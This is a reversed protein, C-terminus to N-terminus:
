SLGHDRGGYEGAIPTTDHESGRLRLVSSAAQVYFEAAERRRGAEWLALALSSKSLLTDHHDDGFVREHDALAQEFLPIAKELDGAMRYAHALNNRSALTAPHYAGLVRERDALTRQYLPIAKDLEGASQYAYALNNMGVLTQPHDPGLVRENDAMTQVFMPIAKDLDGASRYAYALNNRTVLTDPHNAGLVRERDALTREHMPIAKGLDGALEYAYALNNKSVLTQPDDRGLIRESDALTQQYLPIAKDLDGATRHAFALNNRCALTDAHDPGLVQERCALARQFQTVAESVRGAEALWSALSTRISSITTEHEREVYSLARGLLQIAPELMHIAALDSAHLWAAAVDAQSDFSGRSLDLLWAAAVLNAPDNALWYDEEMQETVLDRLETIARIRLETEDEPDINLAARAQDALPAERFAEVQDQIVTWAAPDAALALGEAVEDPNAFFAASRSVIEPLFAPVPDDERALAVAITLAGQIQPTLEDWRQRYVQELTRPIKALVRDDVPLGGQYRRIRRQTSDRTLWLELLLPTPMAEALVTADSDTVRPAYRRILIELDLRGLRPVQQVEARGSAVAGGLWNGWMPNLEGEPWATLVLLVPRGRVPEALDSLLVAMDATLRHADEIVVVGPLNPHTVARISDALQHATDDRRAAAREGMDVRKNLDRRQDIRHKGAQGTKWLWSAATGIGPVTVNLLEQLQELGADTAEGMAAERLLNVVDKRKAIFKDWLGARQAWAQILPPLWLSLEAQAAALVNANVGSQLRECNFTWWGFSPLAGPPWVFGELPPGLVKREALPSVPGGAGSPGTPIPPWFGPEPQRDRLRAYLERVIRSKGFGSEARLVVVRPVTLNGDSIKDLRDVLGQVLGIHPGVLGSGDHNM